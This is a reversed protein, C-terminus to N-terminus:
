TLDSYEIIQIVYLKRTWEFAPPFYIAKRVNLEGYHKSVVTLIHFHYSLIVIM